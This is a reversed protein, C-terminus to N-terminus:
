KELYNRPASHLVVWGKLFNELEPVTFALMSAFSHGVLIPNEFFKVVDLLADRWAFFDYTAQSPARNTGNHPLDVLWVNGSLFPLIECLSSLYGSDMGPGGPFFLWNSANGGRCGWLTLRIGNDMRLTRMSERRVRRYAVM